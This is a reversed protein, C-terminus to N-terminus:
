DSRHDMDSTSAALADLVTRRNQSSLVQGHAEEVRDRYEASQSCMERHAAALQYHPINPYIHHVAHVDNGYGLLAWQTFPDVFLVRSNTVEGQDANAHQYIERLLMLYPFVYVLPLGWLLLVYGGIWLGTRIEILNVCVFVTTYFTLRLLGSFKPSYALRGGPAFFWSEPMLTWLAVGLVWLLPAAYLMSGMGAHRATDLLGILVVLYAVGYLTANQLFPRRQGRRIVQSAYGPVPLFGSDFSAVRLLELSNGLVTPPWLFKLYYHCVFSTKPMPFRAYLKAARDGSLNSDLAPDNPHLHHSLHRARYQAFMACLPSFCFLEALVDNVRRNPHLLYHSAEHGMLAIRHQVAGILVMAVFGVPLNWLWHLGWTERNVFFLITVTLILGATVFDLALFAVNRFPQVRTWVRLSESDLYATKM